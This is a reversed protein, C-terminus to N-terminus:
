YMCIVHILLQDNGTQMGVDTLLNCPSILHVGVCSLTLSMIKLVFQSNFCFAVFFQSKDVSMVVSM